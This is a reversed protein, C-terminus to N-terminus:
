ALQKAGAARQMGGPGDMFAFLRIVNLGAGVAADLMSQVHRRNGPVASMAVLSPCNGGAVVFPSDRVVFQTGNPDL